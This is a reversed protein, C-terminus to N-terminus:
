RPYPATDFYIALSQIQGLHVTYVEAVDSTFTKGDAGRVEYRVTACVREGEAILDRLELSAVKSYFRQTAQLYGSKGSLQKVPSTYSIFTANDAILSDFARQAKIADLYRHVTEGASLTWPDEGARNGSAETALRELYHTWGHGHSEAAAATPLDRHTFRLLTGNGRPVLEFIVTTTGPPVNNDGEWGWTFALRRPPDIEVFEGRAVHGPVVGVRYRGGPRLDFDASQGIWRVAEKPDSILKWVTEPKAAIEIERQVAITETMVDM